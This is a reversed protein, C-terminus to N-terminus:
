KNSNIVVYRDLPKNMQLLFIDAIRKLKKVFSSSLICSHGGTLVETVMGM